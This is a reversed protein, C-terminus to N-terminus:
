GASCHARSSIGSLRWSGTLSWVGLAVGGKLLLINMDEVRRYLGGFGGGLAGRSAGGGPPSLPASLLLTGFNFILMLSM